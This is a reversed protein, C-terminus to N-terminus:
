TSARDELKLARELGNIEHNLKGPNSLKIFEILDSQRYISQQRKTLRSYYEFVM